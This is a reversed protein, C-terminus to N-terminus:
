IVLLFTVWSTVVFVQNELVWLARAIHGPDNWNGCCPLDPILWCFSWSFFSTRRHVHLIGPARFFQQALYHAGWSRCGEACPAAWGPLLNCSKTCRLPLGVLVCELESVSPQTIKGNWFSNRACRVDEKPADCLRLCLGKSCVTPPLCIHAALALWICMKSRIGKVKPAKLQLFTLIM